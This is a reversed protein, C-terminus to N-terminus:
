PEEERLSINQITQKVQAINERLGAIERLADVVEQDKMAGHSKQEWLSYVREGLKRYAKGEKAELAGKDILLRAVAAEIRTRESIVKSVRVVKEIGGDMSKKVRDWLVM